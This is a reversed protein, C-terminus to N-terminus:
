ITVCFYFQGNSSEFHKSENDIKNIHGSVLPVFAALLFWLIGSIQVGRTKKGVESPYSHPEVVAAPGIRALSSATAVPKWFSPLTRCLPCFFSVHTLGTLWHPTRLAQPVRQSWKLSSKLDKNHNAVSFNSLKGGYILKFSIVCHRREFLNVRQCCSWLGWNSVLPAMKGELVRWPDCLPCIDIKTYALCTTYQCFLRTLSLFRVRM